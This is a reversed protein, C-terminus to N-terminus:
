ARAIGMTRAAEVAVAAGADYTMRDTNIVLDYLRVDLWDAQYHQQMYAHRHQDSQRVQRLAEEPTVQLRDCLRRVRTETSAVVLVRVVDARGGLLIPAARGIVVLSQTQAQEQIIQATLQALRAESWDPLGEGAYAEPYAANIVRFLRDVFGEVHEDRAEVYSSPAGLRAAVLDVIQNDLLEVRLSRAVREGIQRGGAGLQRGFAVIM